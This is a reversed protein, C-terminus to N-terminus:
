VLQALTIDTTDLETISHFAPRSMPTERRSRLNAFHPLSQVIGKPPDSRGQPRVDQRDLQYPAARRAAVLTLCRFLRQRAGTAAGAALVHDALGRDLPAVQQAVFM